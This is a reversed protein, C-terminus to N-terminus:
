RGPWTTLRAPSGPARPEVLLAHAITLLASARDGLAGVRSQGRGRLHFAVTFAPARMSAARLNGTRCRVSSALAVPM